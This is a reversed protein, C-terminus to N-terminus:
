LVRNCCFSCSIPSSLSSKKSCHRSSSSVNPSITPFSMSPSFNSLVSSNNRAVRNVISRVELPHIEYRGMTARDQMNAKPLRGQSLPAEKKTLVREACQLANRWRGMRLWQRLRLNRQRHLVGAEHWTGM